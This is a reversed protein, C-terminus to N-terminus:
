FSAEQCTLIWQYWPSSDYTWVLKKQGSSSCWCAFCRWSPFHLKYPISEHLFSFLELQTVIKSQCFPYMLFWERQIPTAQKKTLIKTGKITISLLAWTEELYRHCLKQLLIARSVQDIFLLYNIFLLYYGCWTPSQASIHTAHIKYTFWAQWLAHCYFPSRHVNKSASHHHHHHFAELFDLKHLWILFARRHAYVLHFARSTLPTDGKLSLVASVNLLQLFHIGRLHPFDHKLSPHSRQSFFKYRFSTWDDNNFPAHTTHFSVETFFLKYKIIFQQTWWLRRM